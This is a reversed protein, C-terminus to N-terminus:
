PSLCEGLGCSMEFVRDEFYPSRGGQPASPTNSIDGGDNQIAHLVNFLFQAQELQQRQQQQYEVENPYFAELAYSKEGFFLYYPVWGKGYQHLSYKWVWQEGLLQIQLPEGLIHKVEDPLMGLQLQHTKAMAGFGGGTGLGACGSLFLGLLFILVRYFKRNM